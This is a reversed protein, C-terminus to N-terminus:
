RKDQFFSTLLTACATEEIGGYIEPSHHCSNQAFFRVGHEAAGSKEDFAGYYLRAIRALSIAGACMTCPELTVYLDCGNLRENGLHQAALRLALIEAHATPDKLTRIQNHAQGIIQGDPATVVAGVPVEGAQAALKAECLAIQMPSPSTSLSPPPTPPTLPAPTDM